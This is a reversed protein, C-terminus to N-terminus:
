EFYGNIDVILHVTTGAPQGVFAAMAGSGNLQVIANNGRTQGVSYNISSVTPVAQGAPFLRINGAATSQTVALNISVARATPPVGCSGTVALTRTQQGQLAPGGVPAGGRTDVVRCPALTFYDFSTSDFLFTGYVDGTADFGRAWAALYKGAGYAVPSQGQNGADVEVGFNAGVTTGSPSVLQGYVDACTGEAPECVFNGNTDNALDTWIVLYNVGDFAIYPLLQPGSATGIPIVGGVLTASPSVLQGFFDYGQVGGMDDTWVALFNTGDFSVAGPNDSLASSANVTFPTVFRGRTETQAVDETWVVLYSSAGFAIKADRGAGDDIEFDLGAPVGATSVFRGYIDLESVLPRIKTWVVLYNTGDFAVGELQRVGTSQSVQFPAGVASGVTSVLQGYVVPGSPNTPEAWVLLYNTGDFAVLPPDGTRPVLVSGLLTGSPSVLQARQGGGQVAVLFNTGDFAIAQTSEKAATAAIPFGGACVAAPAVIALLAVPLLHCVRMTAASM